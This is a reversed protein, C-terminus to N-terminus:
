NISVQDLPHHLNAGVERRERYENLFIKFGVKAQNLRGIRTYTFARVLLAGPIHRVGSQSKRLQGDCNALIGDLNRTSDFWALSGSTFLGWPRQTEQGLCKEGPLSAAIFWEM